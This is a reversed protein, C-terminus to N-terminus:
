MGPKPSVPRPPFNQTASTLDDRFSQRDHPLDYGQVADAFASFAHAQGANKIRELIIYANPVVTKIRATLAALDFPSDKTLAAEVTEGDIKVYDIIGKLNELRTWDGSDIGDNSLVHAGHDHYFDDIAFGCGFEEKLQSLVERCPNDALDDETVEFTLKGWIDDSAFENRLMHGIDQWFDASVMNRASTNISVPMMNEALAQDIGSLILAKDFEAQLGAKSIATIPVLPKIPTDEATRARLLLEAPYTLGGKAENTDHWTEAIFRYRGEKLAALLTMAERAEKAPIQQMSAKTTMGVEVANILNIFQQARKEIM